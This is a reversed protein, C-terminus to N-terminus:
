GGGGFGVAALLLCVAFIASGALNALEYLM